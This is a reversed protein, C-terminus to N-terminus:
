ASDKKVTEINKALRAKQIRRRLILLLILLMVAALLWQQFHLVQAKLTEMHDGFFYGLGSLATAWILLGTGNTTYFRTYSLKQLGWFFLSPYRTGYMPRCLALEWDGVKAALKEIKPGIKQYAPKSRVWEARHYALWFVVTDHLLAGCIAAPFCSYLHLYGGHALAGILLFIFDTEISSWLLTGWFGYSKLLELLTDWFGVSEIVPIPDVM